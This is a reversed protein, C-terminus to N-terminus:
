RLKVVKTRAALDHLCRRSLGFIFLVDAFVIFPGISPIKAVVTIPLVRALIIRTASAKSGDIADVIQLGLVKKGITQASKVLFYGHVLAFIAFSVAAWAIGQAVSVHIKPFGDFVGFLFQFPGLIAFGIFADIVAALLREPRSALEAEAPPASPESPETYSAPPQYPNIGGQM